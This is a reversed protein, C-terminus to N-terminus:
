NKCQNNAWDQLLERNIFYKNGIKFSPFDERKLLDEYLRNRGIGLIKMCENPTILITM